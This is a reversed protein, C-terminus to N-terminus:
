LRAIGCYGHLHRALPMFFAQFEGRESSLGQRIQGSAVHTLTISAGPVVAGSADQVEVNITGTSVQSLLATPLLYFLHLYILIRVAMKLRETRDIIFGM